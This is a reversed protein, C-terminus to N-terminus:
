SEINDTIEEFEFDGNKVSENIFKFILDLVDPKVFGLVRYDLSEKKFYYLQDTKIYSERGNNPNTVVDNATLPYNGPYSLKREKQEESTFSSMVNAIFDYSLGRIEGNEDNVVVFSHRSINQGNHQYHNVLIIDGVKCM